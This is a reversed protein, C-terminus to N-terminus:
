IKGFLHLLLATMMGLLGAVELRMWWALWVVDQKTAVADHDLSFQGLKANLTAIEVRLTTVQEQTPEGRQRETIQVEVIALRERTRNLEVWLDKNNPTADGNPM